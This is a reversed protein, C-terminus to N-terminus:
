ALALAKLAPFSEPRFRPLARAINRHSLLANARRELESCATPNADTVLMVDPLADVAIGARDAAGTFAGLAAEEG